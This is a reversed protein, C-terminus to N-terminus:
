NVFLDPPGARRFSLESTPDPTHYLGPVPSGPETGQQGEFSNMAQTVASQELLQSRKGNAPCEPM